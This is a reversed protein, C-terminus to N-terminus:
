DTEGGAYTARLAAYDESVYFAALAGLRISLDAFVNSGSCVERELAALLPLAPNPHSLAAYDSRTLLIARVSARFHGAIVLGARDASLQMLRHAILLEENAPTLDNSSRPRRSLRAAVSQAVPGRLLNTANWVRHLMPHALAKGRLLRGAINWGHMLPLVQTMLEMAKQSKDLAGLWLDDSSLRTHGLRIHLLEAGLAACLEDHTLSAPSTPDLHQGGVLVFPPNGEFGRVGIDREGRSVYVDVRAVGLATAAESLARSANGAGEGVRECVQRLIETDLSASTAIARELLTSWPEGGRVLPHRLEELLAADLQLPQLARERESAVERESLPGRFVHLVDRARAALRGQATEALRAFRETRLPELQALERTAELRSPSDPRAVEFCLELLEIRQELEAGLPGQEPRSLGTSRLRELLEAAEEEGGLRQAHRAFALDASLHQTLTAGERRRAWLARGLGLAPAGARGLDMAASLLREALAASFRWGEWLTAILALGDPSLPRVVDHVDAHPDADLRMLERVLRARENGGADLRALLPALGAREAADGQRFAVRCVELTREDGLSALAPAIEQFRAANVRPRWRLAGSEVWRPPNRAEFALAGLPLARELWDGLEGLTLLAQRQESAVFMLRAEADVGRAALAILPTEGRALWACIVDRAVASGVDLYRGALEIPPLPGSTGRIRGRAFLERAARKHGLPISLTGEATELRDGGLARTIYRAGRLPRRTDDADRALWLGTETSILHYTTDPPDGTLAGSV